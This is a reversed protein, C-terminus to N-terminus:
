TLCNGAKQQSKYYLLTYDLLLVRTRNKSTPPTPPPHRSSDEDFNYLDAIVVKSDHYLEQM